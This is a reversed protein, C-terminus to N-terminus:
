NPPARLKELNLTLWAHTYSRFHNLAKIRANKGCGNGQSAGPWKKKAWDKLARKILKRFTKQRQQPNKGLALYAPHYSFLGRCCLKQGWAYQNYNSHEYDKPHNVIGARVPNLFIYILLNLGQKHNEVKVTKTRDDILSSRRDFLKNFRRVFYSFTDCLFRGYTTPEENVTTIGDVKTEVYHVTPAQNLLHHHNTMGCWAYLTLDFRKQARKLNELWLIQTTRLRFLFQRNITRFITHVHDMPQINRLPRGM